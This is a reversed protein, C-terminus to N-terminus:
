TRSVTGVSLVPILVSVMGPRLGTTGGVGVASVAFPTVSGAAFGGAAFIGAPVAVGTFGFPQVMVATGIGVPADLGDRARAM